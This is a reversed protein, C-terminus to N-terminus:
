TSFAANDVLVTVDAHTQLASAPLDLTTQGKLLRAVAASKKAGTAVILISAADSITGIGMTIAHTPPSALLALDDKNAEITSRSLEVMRTRSKHSSGPENFGIHGNQGLGLLQLDIPGARSLRDEYSSAEEHPCLAGGDLLNIATRRIDVHHFLADQMYRAFSAAHPTPLGVYEDLNFTTVDRFSLHGLEHLMVLRRYIPLPTRGTALGLVANPKQEIQRAIILAAAAAVAEASDMRTVKLM